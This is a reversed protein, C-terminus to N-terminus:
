TTAGVEYDASWDRWVQLCGAQKRYEFYWAALWQLRDEKNVQGLEATIEQLVREWEACQDSSWESDSSESGSEWSGPEEGSNDQEQEEQIATEAVGQSAGAEQEQEQAVTVSADQVAGTFVGLQATNAEALETEADRARTASKIAELQTEHMQIERRLQADWAEGEKKWQAEYALMRRNLASLEGAQEQSRDVQEGPASEM